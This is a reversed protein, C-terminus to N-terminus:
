ITNEPLKENILNEIVRRLEDEHLPKEGYGLDLILTNLFDILLSKHYANNALQISFKKVANYIKPEAQEQPLLRDVVFLASYLDNLKHNSSKIASFASVLVSEALYWRDTRKSLLLNVLNGTQLHPLRRSTLKKAGKAIVFMRGHTQTLFTITVDQSPLNKKRLVFASTQIAHHKM